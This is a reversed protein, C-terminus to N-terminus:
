AANAVLVRGPALVPAIQPIAPEFSISQGSAEEWRSAAKIWAEAALEALHQFTEATMGSAAASFEIARINALAIEHRVRHWDENSATATHSKWVFDTGQNLVLRVHAFGLKRTFFLYSTWLEQLADCREAEIELWAMMALAYRSERRLQFSSGLIKRVEWWNRFLGLIRAGAFVVLSMVGFLIPVLKGQSWFVAFAMLVCMMSVAYLTLVARRRSLGSQILRHHIHKRDPRFIPLGSLGRRLIALVVDAIPLALAFLPAILGAAVTGKHSTSITLVAILCGLFYAGGDGMYIKAPPFNFFLFGVLAAAVGASLLTAFSYGNQSVQGLGAYALLCMLMLCIGGALGDMGDILNILNTLAVVWFVTVPLAWIGLELPKGTLPNNLVEIQLGCLYIGVAIVLQALLKVKAGLPRIDDRLGLAFMALCSLVVVLDTQMKGTNAFFSAVLAVVVFAAAMAVGGFRSVHGKHTHHFSQSHPADPPPVAIRRILPILAWCVAFGLLVCCVIPLLLPIM